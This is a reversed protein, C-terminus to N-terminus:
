NAGRRRDPLAQHSHPKATAPRVVPEANSSFENWLSVVHITLSSPRDRPGGVERPAITGYFPAM